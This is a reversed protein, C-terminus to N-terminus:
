NTGFLGFLDVDDGAFDCGCCNNGNGNVAVVEVVVGGM